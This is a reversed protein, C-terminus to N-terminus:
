KSAAAPGKALRKVIEAITQQSTKKTTLLDEVDDVSRAVVVLAGARFLSELTAAQEFSLEGGTARKCEIAVLYGAFCATIDPWGPNVRRVLQARENFSRKAETITHPIGRRTLYSRIERSVQDELKGAECIERLQAATVRDGIQKRMAKNM